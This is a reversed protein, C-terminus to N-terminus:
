YLNALGPSGITWDWMQDMQGLINIRTNRLRRNIGVIDKIWYLFTEPQEEHLMAQLEKWFPAADRDVKVSRGLKILGDVRKNQFGTNNFPNTIDASWKDSPDIALGVSFGALFADYKKKAINDFFVVGEVAALNVKIGLQKLNDQIITAAYARRANGANYNLTFEFKKGDKDLMGDGDHDEWGEAKLLQRSKQPDYAYPQLNTNMAWRFVPSFDTIALEGYEGLFGDIIGQRNIGYTMAQRVRKSGFLAHAKIIKKENYTEFDINAWGIYDYGRPPLKELRIQPYNEEIDKVNEPYIPFMMDLTGKKLEALRTTPENIVRLIVRELKAPYPLNCRTNKGLVIEQDRTWKVLRFPGASVPTSNNPNTRLSKRNANRYIHKPIPQLNIHFLQEPDQLAFHFIMTTDDVVTISKEVDFKGDTFIMNDVYNRRHSGVEPDGYLSFSFKIDEATVPVGDEWRVDDRLHLIVDKGDNQFEWARALMPKYILRGEGMDFSLDFISPFMTGNVQSAIAETSVVPNFNDVDSTVGVVATGPRSDETGSKKGCAIFLLTISIVNVIYRFSMDGGSTHYYGLFHKELLTNVEQASVVM